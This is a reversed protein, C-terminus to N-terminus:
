ELPSFHASQPTENRVEQKEDGGEEPKRRGRKGRLREVWGEKRLDAPAVDPREPGPPPGAGLPNRILGVREIEARRASADPLGLVGAARPRRNELAPGRSRDARDRDRGGVRFHDIRARALRLRAVVDNGTVADEARVIAAPGPRVATERRGPVDAADEHVQAIRVDDQHGREAVDEACVPLSANEPGGIAALVPSRRKEDVLVRARDVQRRIRLVGLDDVRRGPLNAVIRPQRVELRVDSRAAGDIAGGVAAARPLAEGSAAPWYSVDAAGTERDGRASAHIREDIRRRRGRCRRSRGRRRRARAEVSGVVAARAPAVHVGVRSERGIVEAPHRRIRLIRVDNVDHPLRDAAGVVSSLRKADDLARRASVVVVEEPDVSLPRVVHDGRAILARDHRDVAPLRPAVPVVLRGALEVM